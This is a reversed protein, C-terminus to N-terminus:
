ETQNTKKSQNNYNNQNAPYTNSNQKREAKQLAREELREAM